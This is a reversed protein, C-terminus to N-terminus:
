KNPYIWCGLANELLLYAEPFRKWTFIRHQTAWAVERCFYMSPNLAITVNGPGVIANVLCKQVEILQWPVKVCNDWIVSM